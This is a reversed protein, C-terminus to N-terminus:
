PRPSRPSADGIGAEPEAEDPRLPRRSRLQRHRHEARSKFEAVVMPGAVPGSAVYGVSHYGDPASKEGALVYVLHANNAGVNDSRIEAGGNGAHITTNKLGMDTHITANNDGDSHITTGFIKVNAKDGDADVHFFPLDVKAHDHGGGKSAEINVAGPQPAPMLAKLETETPALAAQPTGGNLAVLMLKVTEGDDGVYGCSKGDGAQVTRTLGGQRDPCTLAALTKLPTTDGGVWGDDSSWDGAGVNVGHHHGSHHIEVPHCAGLALVALSAAGGILAKRM